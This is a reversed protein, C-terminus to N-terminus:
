TLIILMWIIFILIVLLPIANTLIKYLAIIIKNYKFYFNLTIILLYVVCVFCLIFIAFNVGSDQPQSTWIGNGHYRPNKGGAFLDSLSLLFMLTVVKYM